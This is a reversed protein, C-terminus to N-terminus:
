CKIVIEALRQEIRVIRLVDDVNRSKNRSELMKFIERARNIGTIIPIPPFTPVCDEAMTTRPIAVPRIFVKFKKLNNSLSILTPSKKPRMQPEIAPNAALISCAFWPKPTTTPSEINKAIKEAARRPDDIGM